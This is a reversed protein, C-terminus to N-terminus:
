KIIDDKETIKESTKEQVTKLKGELLINEEQINVRIDDEKEQEYRLNQQEKRINELTM